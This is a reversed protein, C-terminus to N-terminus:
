PLTSCVVPVRHISGKAAWAARASLSHWRSLSSALQQAEENALLVLVIGLWCLAQVGADGERLGWVMAAPMSPQGDARMNGFFVGLGFIFGIVSGRQRYWWPSPKVAQEIM